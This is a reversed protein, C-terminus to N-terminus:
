ARRRRLGLGAIGCLLLAASAPEPVLAVTKEYGYTVPSGASAADDTNIYGVYSNTGDSFTSVVYSSNDDAPIFNTMFGNAPDFVDLGNLGYGASWIRGLNDVAISSSAALTTIFTGDSISLPTSGAIAQSLQSATFKYLKPAGISSATAVYLDGNADLAMGGSYESINDIIVKNTGGNLTVYSLSSDKGFGNSLSGNGGIVLLSNSDHFLVGYNQITVGPIPTFTTSPNSPNFTYLASSGLSGSGIVGLTDSQLAIGSPDWTQANAFSTLTSSGFTTQLSLSSSSGYILQGDSLNAAQSSFYSTLNPLSFSTWDAHSTAPLLVAAFASVVSAKRLSVFHIKM